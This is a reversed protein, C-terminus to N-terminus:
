AGSKMVGSSYAGANTMSAFIVVVVAGRTVLERADDVQDLLALIADDAALRAELDDRADVPAAEADTALVHAAQQDGELALYERQRSKAVEDRM